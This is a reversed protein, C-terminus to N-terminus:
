KALAKRQQRKPQKMSPQKQKKMQKAQVEAIKQAAEAGAKAKEKETTKREEEKKQEEPTKPKEEPKTEGEKAQSESSSALPKDEQRAKKMLTKKKEATKLAAAEVKEARLKKFKLKDPFDVLDVKVIGNIDKIAKVKIKHPPNKIGRAWMFENLYKDLKIKNLDRDYIKMHKALFEKISKVAKPTKKYRVAKKFKKRLPIVYEREIDQDKPQIKPKKDAM